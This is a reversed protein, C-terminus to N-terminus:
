GYDRNRFEETWATADCAPCGFTGKTAGGHMRVALRKTDWCGPCYPGEGSKTWYADDHFVLEEQFALKTRLESNEEKLKANETILKMIDSQLEIIQRNLDVNDLKRALDILTKVNDLLAM